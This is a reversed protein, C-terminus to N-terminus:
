ARRGGSICSVPVANIIIHSNISLDDIFSDGTSSFEIQKALTSNLLLDITAGNLECADKVTACATCHAPVGLTRKTSVSLKIRMSGGDVITLQGQAREVSDPVWLRLIPFDKEGEVEKVPIKVFKWGALLGATVNHAELRAILASIVAAERAV